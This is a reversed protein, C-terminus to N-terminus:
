AAFEGLVYADGAADLARCGLAARPVAGRALAQICWEEGDGDAVQDHALGPSYTILRGPAFAVSGGRATRTAGRGSVHLVLEFGEHAHSPVFRRLPQRWGALWALPLGGVLGLLRREDM